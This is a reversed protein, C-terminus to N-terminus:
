PKEQQALDALYARLRTKAADIALQAVRIEVAIERLAAPANAPLPQPQLAPEPHDRDHMEAIKNLISGM